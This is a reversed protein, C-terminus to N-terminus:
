IIVPTWTGEEYDDLTNSTVNTGTGYSAFQIGASGTNPLQFVGNGQFAFNTYTSGLERLTINLKTELTQTIKKM